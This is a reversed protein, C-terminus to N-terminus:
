AQADDLPRRLLLRFAQEDGPAHGIDASRQLAHLRMASRCGVSARHLTHSVGQVVCVQAARVAHRVLFRGACLQHLSAAMVARYRVHLLHVGEKRSPRRGSLYNILM